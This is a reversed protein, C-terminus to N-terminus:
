AGLSINDWNDIGLFPCSAFCLIFRAIRRPFLRFWKGSSHSDRLKWATEYLIILHDLLFLIKNFSATINNRQLQYKLKVETNLIILNDIYITKIWYLLCFNLLVVKLFIFLYIFTFQLKTTINIIIWIMFFLHHNIILLIM